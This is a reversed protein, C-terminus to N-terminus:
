APSLATDRPWLLNRGEDDLLSVISNARLAFVANTTAQAAPQAVCGTLVGLDLSTVLPTEALVTTVACSNAPIARCPDSMSASSRSRGKM